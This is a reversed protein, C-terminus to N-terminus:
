PRCTTLARCRCRGNSSISTSRRSATKMQEHGEISRGSVTHSLALSPCKLDPKGEVSFKYLLEVACSNIHVVKLSKTAVRGSSDTGALGKTQDALQARKRALTPLAPNSEPWESFRELLKGCHLFISSNVEGRYSSEDGVPQQYARLDAVPGLNGVSLQGVFNIVSSHYTGVECLEGGM